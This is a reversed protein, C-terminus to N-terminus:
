SLFHNVDELQTFMDLIIKVKGRSLSINNVIDANLIQSIKESHKTGPM